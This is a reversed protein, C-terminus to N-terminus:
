RKTWLGDPYIGAETMEKIKQVVAPKDESYTVGFWKATTPFVDVSCLGKEMANSLALPIFFEAKLETGKSALFTKFEDKFIKFVDPAFGFFNM